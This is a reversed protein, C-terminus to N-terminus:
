ESDSSNRWDYKYGTLKELRDKCAKNEQAAHFFRRVEDTVHRQNRRRGSTKIEHPNYAIKAVELFDYVRSLEMEPNTFFLESKLVHINSQGFVKYWNEMSDAYCTRWFLSEDKIGNPGYVSSMIDVPDRIM